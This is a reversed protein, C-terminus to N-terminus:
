RTGEFLLPVTKASATNLDRDLWLHCRRLAPRAPRYMQLYRRLILRSKHVDRGEVRPQSGSGEMIDVLSSTLVWRIEGFINIEAVCAERVAHIWAVFPPLQAGFTSLCIREVTRSVVLHDTKNM